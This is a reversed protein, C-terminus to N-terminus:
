FFVPTTLHQKYCHQHPLVRIWRIMNKILTLELYFNGM